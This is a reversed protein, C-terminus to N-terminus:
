PSTRAARGGYNSGRNTHTSAAYSRDSMRANAADGSWNGGRFGSGTAGSVKDTVYGPWDSNDAFGGSTLEGDGHTGEFSRGTEKGVTVPREWLNGSMEMVGYYSAGAQQRTSSGTAFIGCRVPGDPTATSYNCNANARTPGKAESATGDNSLDSFYDITTDGWAYETATASAGGGRCAKEYELETIPRLGAWDAFAALDMWSLYNAARWQGDASENLTGNDDADCGFTYPDGDAPNAGAKIVQRNVVSTTGTGVMVFQGAVDEGSIDDATRGNQQAQTLTNLFNAYQAQSVEYKMIYFGGYGTPFNANMDTETAATKSIGGDGDVWIGAGSNGFQTDDYNTDTSYIVNGTLSILATDDDTKDLISDLSGGSGGVNDGAYFSGTPILVMEIAFLRVKVNANDAEEDGGTGYNWRVTQNYGPSCFAGRGDASIGVGSAYATITGGTTLTAHSWTDEGSLQYKAFIWVRDYFSASNADTGATMVNDQSLDFRIDVTDNTTDANVLAVNYVDVDSAHASVAFTLLVGTM